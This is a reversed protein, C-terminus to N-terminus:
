LPRTAKGGHVSPERCWQDRLVALPPMVKSEELGLLDVLVAKDLTLRTDDRYAENAPKLQRDKFQEFIKRATDLQRDTLARPDLVTLEPLKSITVRARGQQQRTGIWWFSILGLTTNAWLLVAPEWRTDRLKFTPWATGGIAPEPTVCAALPQSNIQFDRNFHLRSATAWVKLAKSNCGPRVRGQRDPEVVMRTERKANHAWLVPYAAAQWRTMSKIDFPGRPTIRDAQTGSIDRDVPGRTGLEELKTLPVGSIGHLRPLRLGGAYVARAFDALDPEAIAACGGDDIGARIFNGISAEGIDVSGSRTLPGSQTLPIKRTNQSAIRAISRAVEVAKVLDAPREQLNVYLVDNSEEDASKEEDTSKKDNVKNVRDPNVRDPNVRDPQMASDSEAGLARRTAIILAEAMGTDASFARDTSGTAAIAVVCVNAYHTALMRRTNSWDRGSVVAFPLVFAIVGGPKVKAHALDFFNSGLGANGHGARDTLKRNLSKLKAAMLKQEDAETKFGAFSPVPVGAAAATEHNTPRTFPPNMIVLDATSHDVVNDTPSDGTGEVAQRGSVGLEFVAQPGESLMELSGIVVRDAAKKADPNASQGYPMLFVGTREFTIGAYACSLLTATLHVAAPMIDAGILVQEMMKRHIVEDDAGARRVRATIRQYAATLLTGTGCALDAVRLSTVQERDAWDTNLRSAAIEALLHAAAPRTYFTALFKRDAILKGFMQGAMEGTSMVGYGALKCAMETLQSIVRSAERCPIAKLVKYATTFIPAYNVHLIRQWNILVEIRSLDPAPEPVTFDHVAHSTGFLATQFLLANAVIAVGMRTTQPEDAQHLAAAMRELLASRQPTLADRLESAVSNVTNELLAVAQDLLHENIAIRECFGALDDVTGDIWGAEPLRVVAQAVEAKEGTDEGTGGAGEGRGGAGEGRGGAGEGIEGTFGGVETAAVPQSVLRYGFEVAAIERRLNAISLSELRRPIKVAVVQEIIQGGRQLKEGLRAVADADVTSAPEYETEIVVPNGAQGGLPTIVIDPTKGGQDQLVGSQEATVEWRPHRADLAQALLGNFAKEDTHAVSTVALTLSDV